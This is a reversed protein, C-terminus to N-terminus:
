IGIYIITVFHCESDFISQITVLFKERVKKGIAELPTSFGRLWKESEGDSYGRPGGPDSFGTKPPLKDAWSGVPPLFISFRGNRGIPTSAPDLTFLGLFSGLVALFRLESKLGPDLPHCFFQFFSGRLLCFRVLRRTFRGKEAGFPFFWYRSFGPIANKVNKPLIPWNKVM